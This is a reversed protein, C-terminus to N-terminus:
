SNKHRYRDQSMAFRCEIKPCLFGVKYEPLPFIMMVNDHTIPDQCGFCTFEGSEFDQRIELMELLQDFEEDLVANVATTQGM